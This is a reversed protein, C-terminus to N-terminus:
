SFALVVGKILSYGSGREQLKNNVIMWDNSVTSGHRPRGLPRKRESKGVLIRYSNKAGMYAVHGGLRMRMPKM